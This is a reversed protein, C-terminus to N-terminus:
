SSTLTEIKLHSLLPTRQFFSIWSISLCIIHVPLRLMVGFYTPLAVSIMEKM